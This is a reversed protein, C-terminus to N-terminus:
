LELWHLVGASSAKSFLDHLQGFDKIAEPLRNSLVGGALSPFPYQFHNGLYQHDELNAVQLHVHIDELLM